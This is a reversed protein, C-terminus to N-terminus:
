GPSSGPDLSHIGVNAPIVSFVATVAPRRSKGDLIALHVNKKAVARVGAMNNEQCIIVCASYQSAM